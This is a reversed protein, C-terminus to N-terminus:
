AYFETSRNLDAVDLRVSGISLSSDIVPTQAM